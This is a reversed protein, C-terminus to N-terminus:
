LRATVDSPGPCAGMPARTAKATPPLLLQVLKLLSCTSDSLPHLVKAGVSVRVAALCGEGQVEYHAGPGTAPSFEIDYLPEAGL